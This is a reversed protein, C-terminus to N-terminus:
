DELTELYNKYEEEDMLGEVDETLKIKAIWHDYPSENLLEPNAELSENTEVIEGSVPCDLDVAAKVSELVAYADGKEFTDEVEPLEVYVIDGLSKQAYESIGVYCFEGDVEVWDHEETYLLGDRVLETM